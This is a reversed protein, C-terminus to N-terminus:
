LGVGVDLADALGDGAAHGLAEGQSVAAFDIPGEFTLRALLFRTAYTALWPFALGLTLTTGLLYILTLKCVDWGSLDLHGRAGQFHTHALEYRSLEAIFWFYYVGLTLVSLLFGKISMKWVELDSGDYRFAQTGFRTRDINVKRVRNLWVPGYLGLTLLTLLYGVVFTRAFPGAGPEMSFRIGRWTTRSLLYSRSWYVAFPILALVGLAMAVQVVAALTTSLQRILTPVALFIIYGAVVKLYGVFLERGTGHYVLRQGHFEVNQWLYKRKATTAWAAYIGFTLLTLLVNKLILVFLGGGTGHFAMQYRPGAPPPPADAKTVFPETGHVVAQVM